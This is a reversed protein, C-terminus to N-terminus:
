NAGFGWRKINLRNRASRFMANLEREDALWFWVAGQARAPTNDVIRLKRKTQKRILELLEEAVDEVKKAKRGEKTMAKSSIGLVMQNQLMPYGALDVANIGHKKLLDVNMQPDSVVVIPMRVVTFPRNRISTLQKASEANKKIIREAEEMATDYANQTHFEDTAQLRLEATAFLKRVEEISPDLHVSRLYSAKITASGLATAERMSALENRVRRLPTKTGVPCAKQATMRDIGAIAKNLITTRQSDAVIELTALQPKLKELFGIVKRLNRVRAELRAKVAQAEREAVQAMAEQTSLSM